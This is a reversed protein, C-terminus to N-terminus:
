GESGWMIHWAWVASYVVLVWTTHLHKQQSSAKFCCFLCSVLTNRTGYVSNRKQEFLTLYLRKENFLSM